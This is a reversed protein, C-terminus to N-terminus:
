GLKGELRRCASPFLTQMSVRMMCVYLRACARVCLCMCLSFSPTVSRVLFTALIQDSIECSVWEGGAVLSRKSWFLLRWTQRGHWIRWFVPQRTYITVTQCKHQQSPVRSYQLCGARTGSLWFTLTIICIVHPWTNFLQPFAVFLMMQSKNEQWASRTRKNPTKKGVPSWIFSKKGVLSWIFRKWRPDLCCIEM